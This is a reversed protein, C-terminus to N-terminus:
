RPPLGSSAAGVPELLYVDNTGLLPRGHRSRQADIMSRLDQARQLAAWGAARAAYDPWALWYAVSPVIPGAVIDLVAPITAGETTFRPLIDDALHDAVAANCGIAVECMVLDHVAHSSPPPAFPRGWRRNPRMLLLAYTEVLESGANTDARVRWWRQDAYFRGWCAEREAADSWEILYIFSPMRPGALVTWHGMARIGHEEFLPPVARLMRAQIDSMRGLPISYIRLEHLM